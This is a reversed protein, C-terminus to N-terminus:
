RLDFRVPVILDLSDRHLASPIPPLPTARRIMALVEQDLIPFGSSRALHYGTVQGSRDISFALLAEGQEHAARAAYPYHKYRTLYALLTNAFDPPVPVHSSTAAAAQPPNAKTSTPPISVAVTRVPAPRQATFSVPTPQPVRRPRRHIPKPRPPPVILTPAPVLAPAAKVLPEPTPPAKVAPPPITSAPQAAALSVEITHLTPPIPMIAAPRSELHVLLCAHALLVLLFSSGWLGAANGGRPDGDVGDSIM